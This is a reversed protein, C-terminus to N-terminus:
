ASIRVSPVTEVQFLECIHHVIREATQGDWM